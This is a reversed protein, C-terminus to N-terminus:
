PSGVRGDWAVIATALAVLAAVAWIADVATAVPLLALAALAGALLAPKLSRTTRWRFGAQAALYTAIGACAAFAAVEDLPEDVHALANKVGLALLVIGAAMGLHIYSYSDRALTNRALGPPAAHLAREGADAARDFYIWWLAAAVLVGLGATVIEAAGLDAGSLGVGIAVISEGLAIIVILGHREAFHAPSCRFGEIGRIGGTVFDAVIVFAWVAAQAWGDLFAAAILFAPAIVAPPTLSRVAARVEVDSSGAAFLAVHLIRVGLYACAFLLAEDGFAGPLALAAILMAVMAAFVALRVRAERPDVENTLWAYAAWAWWIAALALMGQGVGAWDGADAMLATVQTLAFVFVLDFFLELPSSRKAEGAGGRDSM